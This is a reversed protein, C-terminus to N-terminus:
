DGDLHEIFISIHSALMQLLDEERSSFHGSGTPVTESSDSGDLGTMAEVVALV